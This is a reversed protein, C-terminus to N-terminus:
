GFEAVPQASERPQRHQRVQLRVDAVTRKMLYVDPLVLSPDPKWVSRGDLAGLGLRMSSPFSFVCM